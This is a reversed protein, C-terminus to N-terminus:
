LPFDFAMLMTDQIVWFQNGDKKGLEVGIINGPVRQRQQVLGGVTRRPGMYGYKVSTSRASSFFKPKKPSLLILDNKEGM